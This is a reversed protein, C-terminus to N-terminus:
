ERGIRGINQQYLDIVILRNGARTQRRGVARNGFGVGDVGIALGSAGAWPDEWGDTYAYTAAAGAIYRRPDAEAERDKPRGAWGRMCMVTRGCGNAHRSHGGVPRVPLFGLDPDGHAFAGGGMFHHDDRRFRRRLSHPFSELWATIRM